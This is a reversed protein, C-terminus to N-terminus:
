IQPCMGRNMAINSLFQGNGVKLYGFNIVAGGNITGNNSTFKSNTAVVSGSKQIFIAGGSGQLASNNSFNCHIISLKSSCLVGIGAGNINARNDNITCNEILVLSRDFLLAGFGISASNNTFHCDTIKASSRTVWCAGAESASNSIFSNKHLSLQSNSSLIAGGQVAKNELFTNSHILVNEAMNVVIAVGFTNPLSSSPSINFFCCSTINVFNCQLINVDGQKARNNYFSCNHIKLTQVNNAFLSTGIEFAVNKEFLCHEIKVSETGCLNLCTAGFNSFSLGVLSISGNLCELFTQSESKPVVSVDPIIPASYRSSNAIVSLNRNNVTASANYTGPMIFMTFATSLGSASYNSVSDLAFQLTRWTPADSINTSFTGSGDKGNQWDVFAYHCTM